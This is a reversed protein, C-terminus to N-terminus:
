PMARGATSVMPPSVPVYFVSIVSAASTSCRACEILGALVSEHFAPVLPAGQGGAAVDRRRFDSVVTIGTLEALLAPNGIQITFGRQPEHRVTQGHSGIARVSEPSLHQEALLQNAMGAVLKAWHQEAIAARALEDGSSSCLALLEQRLQDPMAQYRTALLRTHDTQEVLALDVGDLSTGSMVGLYLPM